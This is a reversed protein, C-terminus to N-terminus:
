SPREDSTAPVCVMITTGDFPESRIELTGGILEARERMGVLGYGGEETRQQPMHGSPSGTDRIELECWDGDRRLLIACDAGPAHRRINTLAEQATRVLTLCADAALSVHEVHSECAAGTAAHFENALVAIQDEIDIGDGRLAHVAQKTEALGDRALRSARRVLALARQPSGGQELLLAAGELHLLQASLSHALVDHIERAFRQREALVAEGARAQAAVETRERVVSLQQVAVAFAFSFLIGLIIGVMASTDGERSVTLAVGAADLLGIVIVARLRVTFVALWPLVFAFGLGGYPSALQMLAVGIAVGGLLVPLPLVRIRLWALTYAVSTAACAGILPWWSPPVVAAGRASGYASGLGYLLGLGGLIWRLRNV